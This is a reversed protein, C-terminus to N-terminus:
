IHAMSFIAALLKFLIIKLILFVNQRSNGWFIPFTNVVVRVFVYSDAM